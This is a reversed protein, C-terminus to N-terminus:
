NHIVSMVEKDAKSKTITIEWEQPHKMVKWETKQRKVIIGKTTSFQIFKIFEM